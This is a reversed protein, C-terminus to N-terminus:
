QGRDHGVRPCAPGAFRRPHEQADLVEVARPTWGLCRRHNKILERRKAEVVVRRRTLGICVPGVDLRFAARSVDGRQQMKFRLPEEEGAIATAFVEERQCGCRMNAVLPRRVWSGTAVFIKREVVGRNGHRPAKVRRRAHDGEVVGKTPPHLLINSSIHTREHHPALVVDDGVMERHDDVIASLAHGFHNASVVEQRRCRPLDAQLLRQRQWRWAVGM